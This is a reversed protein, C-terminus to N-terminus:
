KPVETVQVNIVTSAVEDPQRDRHGLRQKALWILMTVNGGMAIEHMKRKLSKKGEEDGERMIESFNAYLTDVNCGMITAIEEKTCHIMALDKILKPDLDKAPRGMKKPLDKVKTPKIRRKDNAM